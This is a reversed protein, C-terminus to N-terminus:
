FGKEGLWTMLHNEVRARSVGPPRRYEDVLYGDSLYLVRDATAAVKIDHTALVITKGESQLSPFFDLIGETAKSNLAGTPEDGVFLAPSNMLARCVAARQAQGGSVEGVRRSAISLIDFRKMLSEAREQLGARAVAKALYGPLIINDVISLHPHLSHHQFVFGIHRLRFASLANASMAALAHGDVLVQGSTPADLGTLVHLLTSKGSGSSGMIVVYEGPYITLNVQELVRVPQRSEARYQKSLQEAQILAQM